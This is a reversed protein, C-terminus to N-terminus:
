PKENLLKKKVVIIIVLAVIAAIVDVLWDIPDCSRGPVFYQHLEDSAAYLSVFLFTYYYDEFLLFVSITYGFYLVFHFLSSYPTVTSPIDKGPTASLLFIFVSYLLFLVLYSIKRRM